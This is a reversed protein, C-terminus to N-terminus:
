GATVDRQYRSLRLEYGSERGLETLARGGSTTARWIWPLVHRVQIGKVTPGTLLHDRLELRLADLGAPDALDSELARQVGDTETEAALAAARALDETSANPLLAAPAATSAVAPEPPAPVPAASNRTELDNVLDVLYAAIEREAPLDSHAWTSDILPAVEAWTLHAFRQRTSLVPPSVLPMAPTLYLLDVGVDHHWHDALQLYYPIQAPRHGARETKLEILFLRDPWVVGYDPWGSPETEVRKPLEYEDVFGPVDDPASGDGFASAHLARLFLAGAASAERQVNWGRELRGLVLCTLLRQTFEERGLRGRLEGPPPLVTSM